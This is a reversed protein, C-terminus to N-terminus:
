TDVGASPTTTLSTTSSMNKLEAVKDSREGAEEASLQSVRRGPRTRLFVIFNIVMFVLFCGGAIAAIIILIKVLDIM